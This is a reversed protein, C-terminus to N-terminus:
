AAFQSLSGWGFLAAEEFSEMGLTQQVVEENLAPHPRHHDGAVQAGAQHSIRVNPGTVEHLQTILPQWDCSCKLIPSSMLPINGTRQFSLKRFVNNQQLYKRLGVMVTQPLDRRYPVDRRAQLAVFPLCYEEEDSQVTGMDREGDGHETLQETEALVKDKVRDWVTMTRLCLTWYLFPPEPTLMRSSTSDAHRKTVAGMESLRACAM